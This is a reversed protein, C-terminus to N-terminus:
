KTYVKYAILELENKFLQIKGQVFIPQDSNNNKLIVDAREELKENQKAFLVCRLNKDNHVDKLYCFVHGKRQSASYVKGQVTVITNIFSDNIESINYEKFKNIKNNSNVQKEKKVKQQAEYEAKYAEEAIIQRKQEATLENTDNGKNNNFINPVFSVGIIVAIVAIWTAFFKM